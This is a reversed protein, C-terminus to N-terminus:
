DNIADNFRDTWLQLHRSVMGADPHIFTERQAAISKLLNPLAVDRNVPLLNYVDTMRSQVDRGLALDIFRLAADQRRGSLMMMGEVVLPTPSPCAMAVPAGADHLEKLASPSGMMAWIDGRALSRRALTDSSNFIAVQDRIKRLFRMGSDVDPLIGGELMTVVLVSCGPYLTPAAVAIEDSFAQSFFQEWNEIRGGPVLDTRYVIGVPFSWYPIFRETRGVTECRALAPILGVDIEGFLATDAAARSAVTESTFWVDVDLDLRSAQLRALGEMASSELVPVIEVGARDRFLPALPKFVREWSSGFMMVVVPDLGRAVGFRPRAVSAAGLGTLVARRGLSTSRFM